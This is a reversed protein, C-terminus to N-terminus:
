SQTKRQEDEYWPDAIQNILDWSCQLLKYCMYQQHVFQRSAHRDAEFGCDGTDFYLVSDIKAAPNTARCFFEVTAQLRLQIDLLTYSSCVPGFHGFSLTQFM